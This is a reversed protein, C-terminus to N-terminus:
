SLERADTSVSDTRERFRRMIAAAAAGSFFRQKFESPTLQTTVIIPRHWDCRVRILHLLKTEWKTNKPENGLDDLLLWDAQYAERALSATNAAEYSDLALWTPGEPLAAIHAILQWAIRTKGSNTPGYLVLGIRDTIRLTKRARALADNNGKASNWERFEAPINPNHRVKVSKEQELRARERDKCPECANEKWIWNGVIRVPEDVLGGCFRCVGPRHMEDPAHQYEREWENLVNLCDEQTPPREARAFIRMAENCERKVPAPPDYAPPIPFKLDSMTTM